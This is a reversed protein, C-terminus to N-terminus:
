VGSGLGSLPTHRFSTGHVSTGWFIDLVSCNSPKVIQDDSANSQCHKMMCAAGYGAAQDSLPDTKSLYLKISGRNAKGKITGSLEIEPRVSIQVSGLLFGGPMGGSAVPCLSSLDVQDYWNLFSEIAEINGDIKQGEQENAPEIGEMRSVESTLISEDQMGGAIFRTIAGCAAEYWIVRFTPPYKQDRIIKPRKAPLAVSYKMLANLSFRPEPNVRQQSNSGM